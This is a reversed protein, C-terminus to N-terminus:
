KVPQKNAFDGAKYFAMRKLDIHRRMADNIQQATLASVKAEFEGVWSYPRDIFLYNALTGILERDQARSVQRAQLWGSKAQAVEEDTFGDRLVKEIEDRLAAELRDRNEPAYIAGAMFQGRRDLSGASLQSWVGYSLGEQQRIRVALRSSLFGGGLMYNGLVLAPYDPDDDRIELQCGALFMANAKDPTEFSRDIPVTAIYPFEVRVFPTPNEWSGFLEGVLALIEAADFDGAVAMEAVSAGYFKKHFDRVQDLTVAQIDAIQEDFTGSYRVDGKPYPNLHRTFENIAISEPESRQSEISTVRERKLEAFEDAPFAPERLVEALLRMVAGLNDRTTNIFMSAATPGGSVFAQAKLRTLEDQIQQRSHKTTGRMLMGGTLSGVTALGHLSKANGLHLTLTLNVADGRTQKPLLAVRVGDQSKPLLLRSVINRVTPEFAEGEAVGAGGRYKAVIEAVSPDDPIIARDPKETPVFLGLTRNSPKLYSQAVRQVDAPTVDKIRDRHVFFLRWDGLAMWESLMLGIQDSQNLALEVDRLVKNKARDVEETTPTATGFSEV